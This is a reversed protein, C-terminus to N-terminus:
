GVYMTKLIDLFYRVCRMSEMDKRYVANFTWVYEPHGISFLAIDKPLFPVKAGAEPMITFAMSNSVINIATVMNATEFTSKPVVHHEDFIQEVIIRLNQEPTQWVFQERELFSIDMNQYEGQRPPDEALAKAVIPHNRNGVLLLRENMLVESITQRNHIPPLNMLCVDVKKQMLARELTRSSGELVKLQVLPYRQQFIPMAVPLIISSRWHPIGVTLEGSEDSQFKSFDDHLQKDLAWVKKVYEYYCKGAPSLQFPITSRDFLEQGLNNELRHLYKSLSPQSIYLAEAAKTIGGNEVIALFYPYNKFVM